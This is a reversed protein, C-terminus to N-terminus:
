LRAYMCFPLKASLMLKVSEPSMGHPCAWFPSAMPYKETWDMSTSPMCVVKFYMPPLPVLPLPHVAVKLSFKLVPVYTNLVFQLMISAQRSEVCRSPETMYM